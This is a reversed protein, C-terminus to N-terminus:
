EGQNIIKEIESFTHEKSIGSDIRYLVGKAEYYEIIPATQKLYTEFRNSFTEDNDDARRILPAECKDCVGEQKPRTEEFMDNYVEGCKSCSLRGVIRKRAIERELDLVIVYGLEKNLKKLIEEYAEAQKINRPFGDLIYGNNCDDQSLRETLLDFIVEDSVLNGLNMQEKIYASHKGGNEVENRLMDGTSIHPLNYKNKLLNSQTGKGAAPPAIFIISKM